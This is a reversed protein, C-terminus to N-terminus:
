DGDRQGIDPKIAATTATLAASGVSHGDQQKQLIHWYRFLSIIDIV